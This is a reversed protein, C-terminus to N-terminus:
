INSKVWEEGIKRDTFLSVKKIFSSALSVIKNSLNEVIVDKPIIYAQCTLGSKVAMPYYSHRLFEIGKSFSGYIKSIDVVSGKVENRSYFEVVKKLHELGLEVNSRGNYVSVLLRDEPYFHTTVFSNEAVLM